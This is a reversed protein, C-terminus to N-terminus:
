VAKSKAPSVLDMDFMENRSLGYKNQILKDGAEQVGKTNVPLGSNMLEIDDEETGAEIKASEPKTRGDDMGLKKPTVNEKGKKQEKPLPKESIKKQEKPPKISESSNMHFINKKLFSQRCGGAVWDQVREREKYSAIKRVTKVRYANYKDGICDMNEIMDEIEDEAVSLASKSSCSSDMSVSRKLDRTPSSRQSNEENGQISQTNLLQKDLLSDDLNNDAFSVQAGVKNEKPNFTIAKGVDKSPTVETEKQKVESTLIIEDHIEKVIGAQKFVDESAISENPDKGVNFLRERAWAASKLASDVTEEGEKPVEGRLM